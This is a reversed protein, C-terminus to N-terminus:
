QFGPHRRIGCSMPGGYLNGKRFLPAYYTLVDDVRSRWLSQDRQERLAGHIWGDMAHFVILSCLLERSVVSPGGYGALVAGHDEEGLASSTVISKALDYERVCFAASEFDILHPIQVGGTPVMMVNAPHLDGHCWTFLRSERDLDVLRRLAPEVYAAIQKPVERRMISLQERALIALAGEPGERVTNVSPINMDPQAFPSEHLLALLRGVMRLAERRSLVGEQVSRWLNHNGLDTTILINAGQEALYSHGLITATHITTSTSLSRIMWQEKAVKRTASRLYLKVIVPGGSELCVRYVSSTPARSLCRIGTVDVALVEQCAAVVASGDPREPKM